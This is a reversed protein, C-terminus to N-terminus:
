TSLWDEEEGMEVVVVKPLNPNKFYQHIWFQAQKKKKKEHESKKGLVVEIM